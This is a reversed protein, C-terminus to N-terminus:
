ENFIDGEPGLSMSFTDEKKAMKLGAEVEKDCWREVPCNWCSTATIDWDGADVSRLSARMKLEWDEMTGPSIDAPILWKKMMPSLFSAMEFEIGMRKALWSYMCMQDNDLYKTNATIKLDILHKDGPLVLDAKGFFKHGDEEWEFIDQNSCEKNQLDLASACDELREAAAIAKLIMEDRDKPHRYIVKQKKELWTYLGRANGRMYGPRFNEDVIWKKFLIDVTTGVIFSRTDIDKREVV